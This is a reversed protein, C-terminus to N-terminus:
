MVSIHTKRQCGFHHGNHMTRLGYYLINNICKALLQYGRSHKVPAGLPRWAGLMLYPWIMLWPRWLTRDDHSMTIVLCPWWSARDDRPEAMMICPWWPYHGMMLYPCWSARGVGSVTMMLSSWGSARDDHSKVVRLRPWWSVQGDQLATMMLSSWRSARDDHSSVRVARRFTTTCM